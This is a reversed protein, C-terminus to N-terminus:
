DKEEDQDEDEDIQKVSFRWRKGLLGAAIVGGFVVAVTGATGGFGFFGLTAICCLVAIGLFASLYQARRRFAAEDKAIQAIHELEVARLRLEEKDIEITHDQAKQAMSVITGALGSVVEEYGRLLSPPPLPGSFEQHQLHSIKARPTKEPAVEAEKPETPSGQERVEETM